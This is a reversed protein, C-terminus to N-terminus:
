RCVKEPVENESGFDLEVGAETNAEVEGNEIWKCFEKLLIKGGGDADIVEFDEAKVDQLVVFPAWSAGARKMSKIGAVWEEKDLRRDDDATTGAGGGDVLSFVEFM